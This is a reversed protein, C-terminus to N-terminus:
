RNRACLTTHVANQVQCHLGGTFNTISGHNFGTSPYKILYMGGPCVVANQFNTLSRLHGEANPFSGVVWVQTTIPKAPYSMVDLVMAEWATAPHFGPDCFNVGNLLSSVFQFGSMTPGQRLADTVDAGDQGAPGAPGMPGPPGAPGVPGETGAPGDAGAPGAPGQNGPAGPAGAPGAAGTAGTPGQLGQPGQPGVPGAPGQPGPPGIVAWQVATETNRCDAASAVIRVQNSSKQVCAYIPGQAAAPTAIAFSGVVAAGTLISLRCRTM